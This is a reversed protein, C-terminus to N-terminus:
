LEAKEKEYIEILANLMALVLPGIIFGVFGILALGGLVGLLVLIPHVGARDGILKPKIINDIMSVVFFGYLLLGIGQWVITTDALTTGTGIRILAAPLWVIATGAFPILATIMMVLGWLVPSTIGFIFFGLGGLTGQIIAVIISGHIVAFTTDQFKKFIHDKHKQELPILNKMKIVLAPGDLFLYFTIFFTVIVSLIIGPLSLLVSSTKEIALSTLKGLMDQLPFKISPDSVFDKISESVKCLTTTKGDCSIDILEGTVIRQKARIYVYRAEPALNDLVFVLPIAFLLIIGASVILASLTDNRLYKRLRNHAPYFVYTIIAGTLLANIFPAIVLFSIYLIGM